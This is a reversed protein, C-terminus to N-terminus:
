PNGYIVRDRLHRRLEGTHKKVATQKMAGNLTILFKETVPDIKNHLQPDSLINQAYVAARPKDIGMMNILHAMAPKHMGHEKATKRIDSVLAIHASPHGTSQKQANAAGGQRRYLVQGGVARQEPERLRDTTKNGESGRQRSWLAQRGGPISGTLYADYDGNFLVQTDYEVYRASSVGDFATIENIANYMKDIAAPVGEVGGGFEPIYQVRIGVYEGVNQGAASRNKAKYDTVFTFGADVDLNNILKTLKEATADDVKKTFYVEIGPNAGEVTGPPVAESLFVSDQDRKKAQKVMDDFVPRPNFDQRTVFEIDYSPEDWINGQPDIYRGRSTTAKSMIVAPDQRLANEIVGTGERFMEATAPSAERHPSLGGTFRRAISQIDNLQQRATSSTEEARQTLTDLRAAKQTYEKEPKQSRRVMDVLTKGMAEAEDKSLGREMILNRRKAPTMDLLWKNEEFFQSSGERERKLNEDELYKKIGSREAFTPDTESLRRMEKLAERDNVGAFNAELELSGGEGAKSTWGKKGWQEKELFWAIAQLDDDGLGQFRPDQRLKSAANKFVEQGFGFEGGVGIGSPLPAALVGGGVGQEAEPLLRGRGSLRRLLRAAWVDITAKDSYGILNGTFNPTKPADGAKRERFKDLLALMTQPSNANFLTKGDAKTILPFDGDQAKQFAIEKARKEIAKASSIGEAEAQKIAGPMANRVDDLHGNIYGTGNRAGASGMEGGNAIWNDLKSLARDYAGRSFQSLVEITNEWNQRVGTQASTTGLIDAMTDAFGGYEQRLRDRMARYWNRSAMIVKSNKDGADAKDAVGTVEKVLKDAMDDIHNADWSTEGIRGESGKPQHFEYSDQRLKLVPLGDEDFLVKKDPGREFGSVEFPQWGEREPYAKKKEILAKVAKSQSIENEDALSKIADSEEKKLRVTKPAESRAERELNTFQLDETGGTIPQAAKAETELGQDVAREADSAAASEVERAAAKEAGSAVAGEGERVAAREASKVAAKEAAIAAKEAETGRIIPGAGLIMGAGKVPAAVGGVVNGLQNVAYKIPSMREWKLPNGEADIPVPGQDTNVIDVAGKPLEVGAQELQAMTGEDMRAKLRDRPHETFAEAVAGMGQNYLEPPLGVPPMAQESEGFMLAKRPDMDAQKRELLNFEGGEAKKVSLSALGGGAFYADADFRM